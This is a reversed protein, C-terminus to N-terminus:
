KRRNEKVTIERTEEKKYKAPVIVAKLMNYEPLRLVELVQAACSVCM